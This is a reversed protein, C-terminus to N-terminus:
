ESSKVSMQRYYVIRQKATDLQHQSMTIKGKYINILGEDKLKSITRNLTKVSIGIEEYLDNRTKKVTIFPEKTHSLLPEM